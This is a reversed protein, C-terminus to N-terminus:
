GCSFILIYACDSSSSQRAFQQLVESGGRKPMNLDLLVVDLERQPDALLTMAQEGDEAVVMDFAVGNERLAEEILYVDAPNDEALLIRMNQSM